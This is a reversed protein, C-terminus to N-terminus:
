DYSQESLKTPEAEHSAHLARNDGACPSLWGFLRAPRSERAGAGGQITWDPPCGSWSASAAEAAEENQSLAGVQQKEVSWPPPFRRSALMLIISM